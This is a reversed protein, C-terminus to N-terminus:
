TWDYCIPCFSDDFLQIMEGGCKPCVTVVKEETGEETEVCEVM